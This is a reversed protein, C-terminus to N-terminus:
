VESTIIISPDGYSRSCATFLLGSVIQTPALAVGSPTATLTSPLCEEAGASLVCFAHSTPVDTFYGGEGLSSFTGTM